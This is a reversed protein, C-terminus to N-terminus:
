RARNLRNGDRLKKGEGPQQQRVQHGEHQEPEVLAPGHSPHRSDALPGQQDPRECPSAPHM